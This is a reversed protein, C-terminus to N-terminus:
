PQTIKIAQTPCSTECAMCFICDPERIPESKDTRYNNWEDTSQEIIKDKGTGAQGPILAWEFVFVPCVDMCVGDAICTEWDVAVQSGHIGQTTPYPSGDGSTRSLGQARVKHGNHEGTVPFEDPKSLFDPDIPKTKYDVPRVM